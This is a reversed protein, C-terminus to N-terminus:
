KLRMNHIMQSNESSQRLKMVGFENASAPLAGDHDLPMYSGEDIAVSRRRKEAPEAPMAPPDPVVLGQLLELAQQPMRVACAHPNIPRSSESCPVRSATHSTISHSDETSSVSQRQPPQCGKSSGFDVELLSSQKWNPM